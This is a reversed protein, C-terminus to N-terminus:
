FDATLVDNWVFKKETTGGAWRRSITTTGNGNDVITDRCIGWAPKDVGSSPFVPYGKYIVTTGGDEDIRQEQPYDIESYEVFYTRETGSKRDM